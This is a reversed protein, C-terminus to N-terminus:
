GQTSCTWRIKHRNNGTTNVQKEHDNAHGNKKNRHNNSNEKNDNKGEV